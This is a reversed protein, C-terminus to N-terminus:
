GPCRTVELVTDAHGDGLPHLDGLNDAVADGLDAPLLVHLEREEGDRVVVRELQEVGFLRAHLLGLAALALEDGLPAGGGLKPAEGAEEADVPRPLNLPRGRWQWVRQENMQALLTTGM